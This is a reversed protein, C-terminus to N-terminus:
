TINDLLHLCSGKILKEGGHHLFILCLIAKLNIRGADYCEGKEIGVDDNGDSCYSLEDIWSRCTTGGTLFFFIVFIVCSQSADGIAMGEVFM